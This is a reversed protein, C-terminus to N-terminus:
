DRAYPRGRERWKVGIKRGVRTPEGDMDCAEEGLAAIPDDQEPGGALGRGEGHRLAHFEQIPENGLTDFGPSQDDADAARSGHVRNSQGAGGTMVPDGAHEHERGEVVLGDGVVVEGCGVTPHEPL